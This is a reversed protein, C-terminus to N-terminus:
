RLFFSLIQEANAYIQLAHQAEYNGLCATYLSIKDFLNMWFERRAYFSWMAFNVNEAALNTRFWLLLTRNILGSIAHSKFCSELVVKSILVKNSEISFSKSFIGFWSSILKVNFKSSCCKQFGNFCEVTKWQNGFVFLYITGHFHM